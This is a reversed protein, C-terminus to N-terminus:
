APDFPAVLEGFRVLSAAEILSEMFDLPDFSREVFDLAPQTLDSYDTPDDYRAAVKERWDPDTWDYGVYTPLPDLVRRAYDNRDSIVVTRSAFGDSVREHLGSGFNPTTNVIMQSSAYLGKLQTADVAAHFRARANAKDVHDWGRGIILVPRKCLAEVMWTSHVGRVYHDVQNVVANLFAVREEVSIGEADFAALVLPGIDGTDRKLAEASANEIVARLRRPWTEWLQRFSRPDQGTKVFVMRHERRSWPTADRLPNPLVGIPLRLSLQPARIYARQYALHEDFFYGNAVWRSAVRHNRPMQSPHDAHVAIFPVRLVDWVCQGANDLRSGIGACGWAFAVGEAAVASFREVWSPDALEIVHGRYGAPALLDMFAHSWMRLIGNENEGVFALINRPGVPAGVTRTGHTGPTGDAPSM